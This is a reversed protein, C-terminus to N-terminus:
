NMCSIASIQQDKQVGGYSEICWSSSVVRRGGIVTSVPPLFLLCKEEDLGMIIIKGFKDGRM